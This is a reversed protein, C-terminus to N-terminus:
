ESLNGALFTQIERFVRQFMAETLRGTQTNQQSPHYSVFLRPLGGPLRYSAAHGFRYPQRSEIKRGEALIRLYADLAIKGLALVARVRKLLQLERELYPQCAALEAPLPKNTPPACRLSATIFCNRLKLGDDRSRSTPQTAFGARYLARYLFDGSRDGTFM